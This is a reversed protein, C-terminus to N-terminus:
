SDHTEDFRAMKFLYQILEENGDDFTIFEDDIQYEIKSPTSLMRLADYTVDNMTFDFKLVMDSIVDINKSTVTIAFSGLDSIYEGSLDYTVLNNLEETRSALYLLFSYRDVHHITNQRILKHTQRSYCKDLAQPSGHKRLIRTIIDLQKKSWYDQNLVDSVFQREWDSLQSTDIYRLEDEIM